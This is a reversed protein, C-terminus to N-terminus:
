GAGTFRGPLVDAPKKAWFTGFVTECWVLESHIFGAARLWALWAKQTAPFYAPRSQAYWEGIDERRSGMALVDREWQKWVINRAEASNLDLMVSFAFIGGPKLSWFVNRCAADKEADSELFHLALNSLVYDFAAPRSYCGVNRREIEVWAAGRGLREKCAQIMAPEPEVATLKIQPIEEVLRSSLLGTRCGLELVSPSETERLLMSELLSDLIDAQYPVFRRIETDFGEPSSHLFSREPCRALTANSENVL